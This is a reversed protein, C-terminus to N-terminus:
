RLDDIVYIDFNNYGVENFNYMVVGLIDIKFGM